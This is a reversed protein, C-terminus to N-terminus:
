VQMASSPSLPQVTLSNFPVYGASWEQKRELVLNKFHTFEGLSLFMEFVPGEVQEERGELLNSLEEMSFNKVVRKLHGETTSEILAVWQKFVGTYELKNEDTDEFLDVYKHIFDDQIDVFKDDMILDQLAGIYEDFRTDEPSAPDDNMITFEREDEM